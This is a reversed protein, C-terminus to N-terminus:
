QRRIPFTRNYIKKDKCSTRNFWKTSLCKNWSSPIIQIYHCKHAALLQIYTFGGHYYKCTYDQHDMDDNGKSANLGTDEQLYHGVHETIKM